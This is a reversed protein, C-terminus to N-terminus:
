RWSAFVDVIEQAALPAVDEKVLSAPYLTKLWEMEKQTGPHKNYDWVLTKPLLGMEAACHLPGKNTQYSLGDITLAKCGRTIAEYATSSGDTVIFEHEDYLHVLDELTNQGKMYHCQTKQLTKIFESVPQETTKLPPAFTLPHLIIKIEFDKALGKVVEDFRNTDQRNSAIRWNCSVLMAGLKRKTKRASNFICNLKPEFHTFRLPMGDKLIQDRALLANESLSETKLILDWSYKPIMLKFNQKKVWLYSEIIAELGFGASHQLRVLVRHWRTLFPNRFDGMGGLVLDMTNPDHFSFTSVTPCDEVEKFRRWIFRDDNKTIIKLYEAWYNRDKQHLITIKQEKKKKIRRIVVPLFYNKAVTKKFLYSLRYLKEFAKKFFRSFFRKKKGNGSLVAKCLPEKNM